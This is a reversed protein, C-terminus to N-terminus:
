PNWTAKMIVIMNLKTCNTYERHLALRLPLQRLFCKGVININSEATMVFKWGILMRAKPEKLNDHQEHSDCFAGASQV